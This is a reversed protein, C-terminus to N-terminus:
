FFYFCVRELRRGLSLSDERKPPLGFLLIDEETQSTTGSDPETSGTSKEAQNNGCAALAFVLLVSLTLTFIRKKMMKIIREIKESNEIGNM